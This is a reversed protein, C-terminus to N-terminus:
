NNGFTLGTELLHVNVVVSVKCFFQGYDSTLLLFTTQFNNKAFVIVLMPSLGSNELSAGPM